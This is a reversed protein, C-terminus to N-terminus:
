SFISLRSAMLADDAGLAYLRDVIDEYLWTLCLTISSKPLRESLHVASPSNYTFIHRYDHQLYRLEEALRVDDLFPVLPLLDRMLARFLPEYLLQLEELTVIKSRVALLDHLYTKLVDLSNCLLPVFDVPCPPCQKLTYLTVTDELRNKLMASTLSFDDPEPSDARKINSFRYRRSEYGLYVVPHRVAKAIRMSLMATPLSRLQQPIDEAPLTMEDMHYGRPHLYLNLWPPSYLQAGARYYGNEHAFLYPAEMERAITRDDTAYGLYELMAALGALKGAAPFTIFPM